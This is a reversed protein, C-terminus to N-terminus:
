YPLVYYYTPYQLNYNPYIQIHHFISLTLVSVNLVVEHIHLFMFHQTSYATSSYVLAHLAVLTSQLLCRTARGNTYTASVHITRQSHYSYVLIHLEVVNTVPTPLIPPVYVRLFISRKTPFSHPYLTLLFVITLIHPTDPQTQTLPIIYTTKCHYNHLNYSPQPAKFHVMNLLIDIRLFM